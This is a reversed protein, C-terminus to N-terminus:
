IICSSNESSPKPMLYGVFTSIGNFLCVLGHNKSKKKKKKKKKKVVSLYRSDQFNLPNNSDKLYWFVKGIM